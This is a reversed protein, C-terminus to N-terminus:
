VDQQYEQNQRQPESGAESLSIRRQNETRRRRCQEDRGFSHSSSFDLNARGGNKGKLEARSMETATAVGAHVEDCVAQEYEQAARQFRSHQFNSANRGQEQWLAHQEALINVCNHAHAEETFNRTSRWPSPNSSIPRYGVQARSLTSDGDM